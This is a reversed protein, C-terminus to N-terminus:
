ALYKLNQIEKILEKFIADKEYRPKDLEIWFDSANQAIKDIEEAKDGYYKLDERTKEFDMVGELDYLKAQFDCEIKDIYHCFLAEKSERKNFEQLLNEIEVQKCLGETVKHVAKKGEERKQQLTINSRITYDPILIEELEHLTLMKLVKYMDLNLEYESDLAIALILAGYIHEAVSELRQKKISIEIWGTRIKQKLKNAFTYFNVVNKLKGSKEINRKDKLVDEAKKAYYNEDKIPLNLNKIISKMDELSEYKKGTHECKEEIEIYIRDNVVQLALEDGNEKQYISIHDQIKIFDIYGILKLMNYADDINTIEVNANIQNLINGKDDIQKQKYTILKRTNPRESIDRILIAHNLLKNYDKCHEFEKKVLYIDNIDFEKELKFGNNSIAKIVNEKTELVEVTIENELKM